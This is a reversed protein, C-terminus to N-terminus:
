DEACECCVKVYLIYIYLGERKEISSIYSAEINVMRPHETEVKCSVTM